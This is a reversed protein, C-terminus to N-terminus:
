SLDYSSKDTTKINAKSGIKAIRRNSKLTGIKLCRKPDVKIQM